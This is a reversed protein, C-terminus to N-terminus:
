KKVSILQEQKLFDELAKAAIKHGLENPHTLDGEVIRIDMFDYPKYAELLDAYVVGDKELTDAVMQHYKKMPYDNFDLLLPFIAVAFKSNNKTTLSHMESLDRQVANWAVESAYLRQYNREPRYSDTVSKWKLYVWAGFQTYSAFKDFQAEEKWAAVVFQVGLAPPIPDNLVYVLLVLDPNYNKVKTKYLELEAETGYSSVAFNYVEYKTGDSIGNSNLSNELLTAFNDNREVGYGYAVSDGILAIRFTNKPKNIVFDVGRHGVNNVNPANAKYELFLKKNKSRVPKGNVHANKPSAKKLSQKSYVPLYELHQLGRIVGELLLLCLTLSVLVM